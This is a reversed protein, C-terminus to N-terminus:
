GVSYPDSLELLLTSGSNLYDLKTESIFHIFSSLVSWLDIILVKNLIWVGLKFLYAEVVPREM